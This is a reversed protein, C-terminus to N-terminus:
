LNLHFMVLAKSNPYYQDKVKVGLFYNDILHIMSCFGKTKIEEIFKSKCIDFVKINKNWNFFLIYNKYIFFHSIFNKKKKQEIIFEPIQISVFSTINRSVNPFVCIIKNENIKYFYRKYDSSFRFNEGFMKTIDIIKVISFDKMKLFYINSCNEYLIHLGLLNENNIFFLNTTNYGIKINTIINQPINEKIYWVMIVDNEGYLLLNSKSNILINTTIKFKLEIVKNKIFKNKEDKIWIEMCEKNYLIIANENMIEINNLNSQFEQILEFNEKNCISYKSYNNMIFFSINPLTKLNADGEFNKIIKTIISPKNETYIQDLEVFKKKKKM